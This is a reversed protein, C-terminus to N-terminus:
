GKLRATEQEVDDVVLEWWSEFLRPLTPKLEVPPGSHTQGESSRIFRAVVPIEFIEDPIHEFDVVVLRPYAKFFSHASSAFLAKHLTSRIYIYKLNPSPIDLLEDVTIRHPRQANIHLLEVKFLQRSIKEIVDFMELRIKLTRLNRFILGEFMLGLDMRSDIEVHMLQTYIRAHSTPRTILAVWFYPCGELTTLKPLLVNDPISPSVMYNYNNCPQVRLHQITPHDALFQHFKPLDTCGDMHFHTLTSRISKSLEQLIGSGCVPHPTLSLRKLHTFYPLIDGVTGWDLVNFRYFAANFILTETYAALKPNTAFTAFLQPLCNPPVPTCPLEYRDTYYLKPIPVIISNYVLQTAMAYANRCVFQLPLLDRRNRVDQDVHSIIEGWLEIPLEHAM